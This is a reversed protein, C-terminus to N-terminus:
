QIDWAQDIYKDRCDFLINSDMPGFWGINLEAPDGGYWSSGGSTGSMIASSVHGDCWAVNATKNRHRFHISPLARWPTAPKYVNHSGNVHFPPECFGYEIAFPGPGCAFATDTFAITEGLSRIEAMTSPIAISAEYDRSWGTKYWTGGVYKGNYGYGGTGSEFATANGNCVKGVPDDVLHRFNPCDKLGGSNEFFPSLPGKGSEFPESSNERTGFWRKNNSIDSAPPWVKYVDAYNHCAIVLQRLNSMCQTKRASERAAQVAPLLLATLIGIIAIVVLLEILTFGSRRKILRRQVSQRQISQRQICFRM